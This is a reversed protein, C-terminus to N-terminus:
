SFVNGDPGAAQGDYQDSGDDYSKFVYWTWESIGAAQTPATGGEWNVAAPWGGVTRGGTTDQKLRISIVRPRNTPVNSFTITSVNETLSVTQDPGAQWDITLTGSAISATILGPGTRNTQVPRYRSSTPDYWIELSEGPGLQVDGGEAGAFRNAATSSTDEDTITVVDATDVNILLKRPSGAGEVVSAFGTITQDGTLTLRVVDATAWGTPGYNNAQAAIAAPSLTVIALQKYPIRPM